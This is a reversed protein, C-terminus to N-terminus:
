FNGLFEPISTLAFVYELQQIWVIWRFEPKWRMWKWIGLSNLIRHPTLFTRMPQPTQVIWFWRISPFLQHPITLRLNLSLYIIVPNFVGPLELLTVFM